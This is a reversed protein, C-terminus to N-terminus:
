YILGLKSVKVNETYQCSGFKIVLITKPVLGLFYLMGVENSVLSALTINYYPIKPDYECCKM